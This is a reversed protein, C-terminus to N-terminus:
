AAHVLRPAPLLAGRELRLVRDTASALERGEHSVWLCAARPACERVAGALLARSEADVSRLPEDLLLVRPESILTRALDARARVGTSCREAATELQEDFGFRKALEAIRAARASRPLGALRAHHRLNAALSLRRDFRHEGGAALGIWGRQRARTPSTGAVRVRGSAPRLIGACCRLLTSKGAGNAGIVGVFEGEEVALDVADLVCRAGFHQVLAQARLVAVAEPEDGAPSVQAAGADGPGVSLAGFNTATAPGKRM